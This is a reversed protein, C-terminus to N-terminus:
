VIAMQKRNTESTIQDEKGVKMQITNIWKKEKILNKRM